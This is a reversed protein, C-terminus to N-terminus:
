IYYELSDIIGSRMAYIMLESTSNINLKRFINKRHTIVTHFSLNRKDAIEKTTFGQTILRVIETETATLEDCLTEVARGLM